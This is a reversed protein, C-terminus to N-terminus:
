INKKKKKVNVYDFYTTVRTTNKANIPHDSFHPGRVPSSVQSVLYSVVCVRVWLFAHRMSLTVSYSM